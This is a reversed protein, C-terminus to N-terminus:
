PNETLYAENVWGTVDIGGSPELLVRWWYAGKASVGNLGNDEGSIVGPTDASVSALVAYNTGPGLRVDATLSTKISQNPTFKESVVKPQVVVMMM